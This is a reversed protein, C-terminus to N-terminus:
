CPEELGTLDARLVLADAGGPYYRARRGVRLFGTRDYLAQAAHNSVAVELFMMRAGMDRARDMALDLLARAIGQRRLTPIVAITLIESEDAVVRVLVVAGRADYLGFVNPLGLQLGIVNASWADAPSFSLAHIAALADAHAPLAAAVTATDANAREAPHTDNM